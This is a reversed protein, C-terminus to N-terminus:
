NIVFLYNIIHIFNVVYFGVIDQIKYPMIVALIGIVPIDLGSHVMRLSQVAALRNLLELSGHVFIGPEPWFIESFQIIGDSLKQFAPFLSM